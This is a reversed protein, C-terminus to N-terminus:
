KLASGGKLASRRKPSGEERARSYCTQRASLHRELVLRNAFVGVDERIRVHQHAAARREGVDAGGQCAHIKTNAFM